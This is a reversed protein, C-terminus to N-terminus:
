PKNVVFGDPPPPVDGSAPMRPAKLLADIDEAGTPGSMRAFGKIALMRNARKQDRVAKSDGPAPFYQKIANAFETDAIVAGSEQRLVANVFDRQAQEVKQQEKSLMANGAAGAIGGIIPIRSAAQKTALGELSITDELEELIRHSQAARTGYLAAKGQFETMPKDVKPGRVPRGTAADTVPVAQTGSLIMPGSASQIVQPQRNSRAERALQRQFDQQSASQSAQFAQQSAQLERRLEAAQAAAELRAERSLAANQAAANLAMEREHLRTRRAAEAQVAAAERTAARDLSGQHVKLLDDPAAFRSAVGALAEQTPNPGLGDIAARYAQEKQSAQQRAQQQQLAGQLGVVAGAQKLEDLGEHQIDARRQNYAGYFPVSSLGTAM